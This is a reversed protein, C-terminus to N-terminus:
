LNLQQLLEDRILGFHNQVDTLIAALTGVRLADHRPIALHHEGNQTTTLRIHSGKQRTSTYGFVKRADALKDGSVDRRLRM